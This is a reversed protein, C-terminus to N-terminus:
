RIQKFLGTAGQQAWSSAWIGNGSVGPGRLHDVMEVARMVKDGSSVLDRAGRPSLGLDRVNRTRQVRQKPAGERGRRARHAAADKFAWEAPGEDM